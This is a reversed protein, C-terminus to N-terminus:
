RPDRQHGCGGVARVKRSVDIVVGMIGSIRLHRRVRDARRGRCGAASPRWRHEGIGGPSRRGSGKPAWCRVPQTGSRNLWTGAAQVVQWWPVQDGHDSLPWAIQPGCAYGAQSAIEAVDAYSVLRGAPIAAVVALIAEDLLDPLGCTFRWRASVPGAPDRRVSIRPDIRGKLLDVHSILGIVRDEGVRVQELMDMVGKLVDSDLSGFGEDIFLTGLEVGGSEARVVDALGLALALSVHLTRRREAVQGLTQTRLPRRLDASGPRGTRADLAHGEGGVPVRERLHRGRQSNAASVVDEFRRMLVPVAVRHPDSRAVSRPPLADAMRIVPETDARVQVTSWGRKCSSGPPGARELRDQLASAQAAAKRAHATAAACTRGIAEFIWRYRFSTSALEGSGQDPEVDTLADDWAKSRRNRPRRGARTWCVPRRGDM